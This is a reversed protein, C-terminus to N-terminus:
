PKNAAFVISFPVCLDFCDVGPCPLYLLGGRVVMAFIGNVINLRACM